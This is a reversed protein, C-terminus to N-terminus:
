KANRLTELLRSGTWSGTQRGTRGGGGEVELMAAVDRGALQLGRAALWDLFAEDDASALAAQRMEQARALLV